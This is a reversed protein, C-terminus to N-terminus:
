PLSPGSDTWILDGKQPLAANKDVNIQMILEEKSEFRREGRIYGLLFVKIKKGYIPENLGIIYTESHAEREGVTPCTGVNTVAPYLRGDIRAASRYVGPPPSFTASPLPLNATPTGMGRGLGLGPLVLGEIFFPVGLAEGALEIQKNSLM